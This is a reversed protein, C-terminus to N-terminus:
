GDRLDNKLFAEKVQKIRYRYEGNTLRTHPILGKETWKRILEVGVNFRMAVQSVTLMNPQYLGLPDNKISTIIMKIHYSRHSEFGCAQIAASKSDATYVMGGRLRLIILRQRFHAM